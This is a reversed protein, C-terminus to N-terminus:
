SKRRGTGADMPHSKKWGEVHSKLYEITGDDRRRFKPGKGKGRWNVLTQASVGILAAAETASLVSEALNENM